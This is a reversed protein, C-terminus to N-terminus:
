GDGSGVTTYPWDRSVVGYTPETLYGMDVWVVGGEEHDGTPIGGFIRIVEGEADKLMRELTAVRQQLRLGTGESNLDFSQSRRDWALRLTTYRVLALFPLSSAPEATALESEAYGLMRLADDIPEKLNGTTDTAAITAATLITGLRRATEDRM